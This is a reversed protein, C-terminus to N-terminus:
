FHLKASIEMNRPSYISTVQGFNSDHNATDVGSFQTKNFTNFTEFRMELNPGEHGTLQVTKSLTLNFNNLGPARVNDKGATGFGQNPGGFWPAVPDTYIGTTAGNFWANQTKPYSIKGTLNPRNTGGSLGLVDSGNYTVNLPLGTQFVTIGSIAWGGVITRLAANSSHKAFPLAYVYSANFIHRRDFAGSGEGYAGNFPNPIGGLDGTGTSSDLQHSYTYALQTTLGWKNEVRVGAQLSHYHANTENEEQTIGAFGPFIRLKNATVQGSQNAYRDSYSNGPVWRPDVTVKDALTPANITSHGGAATTWYNSPNNSLPLTNIARTNNQDWGSSGVYQVAAIISPAIQHQIGLSFNMSGPPPYTYKINTLSSPFLSLSTSAVGTAIPIKPNSFLVNTPAPQYAFPPNLAANYVDNGQVREYFVGVGGRLVTKGTGSLDYTFGVRPQWTFYYNKVNGRPFGAVKAEQIGNLYFQESGTTAFTSLQVPDLTNNALIPNGLTYNYAGPVFNAFKNYREFAHPMGDYRLGLNLTLRPTIHWNDIGYGSYNNNVWNKGWLYELQTWSDALGLMANVISDKAYNNQSFQANGNTNAQLEQNKYDHLWSVGFKFQHRGKTWSLDDRYQFGEYGNKWPFYSPNWTAGLPTGNLQVQPLIPAKLGHTMAAQNASPFLSNASWGSPQFINVNAAGLPTLHIKNGSYFVGTENLLSASYTQTLKIAVTYSPNQMLTGVTAFGSGWLPPFFTKDMADHLYHGMLQFKSNISHDIRVADERINEPQKVSVIFQKCQAGTCTTNPQPFVGSNMVMVMNQDIMAKPITYTGTTSNYPFPSGPTLGLGAEMQTLSTNTSVNPVIPQQTPLGTTSDISGQPTYIYDQGAKPFNSTWLANSVSPSSGQILKRWEENWFFFTRNKAENYVHPIYLPGGINGGPMNLQFVPRSKNAQKLFYDNANLATNRVTEYLTGHYQRQGSKIMMVITGGSGLGYDASYNSALTQFEGIADQSPLNMFCGGCGRDNQEAGDILYVNHAARQGNFSLGNASTLADIGGFSPLNNSVGLGLAALQVVNRGNTALQRVQEGSILTSTESTETQVQLADAQVSVTQSESGIALAVNAELNAAVNVVIGTKTYKQFGAASANLTYTGAGVNGFHFAGVANATTERKVGTGYNTISVTANAVVAGSSDAVTGSISANDQAWSRPAFVVLLMALAM